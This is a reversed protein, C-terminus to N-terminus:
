FSSILDLSQPILPPVNQDRSAPGVAWATANSSGRIVVHTKDNISIFDGHRVRLESVWYIGRLEGVVELFSANDSYRIPIKFAAIQNTRASLGSAAVTSGDVVVANYYPSVTGDSRRMWMNRPLDTYFFDYTVLDMGKILNPYPHIAPSYYSDIRGAYGFYRPGTDEEIHFFVRELDAVVMMNIIGPCTVFGFSNDSLEGTFTTSNVYTEYTFLRIVDGNGRLRIFIINPNDVSGEGNSSLVIDRDTATNTRDEVLSWGVHRVLFKAMKDVAEQETSVPVNLYGGAM